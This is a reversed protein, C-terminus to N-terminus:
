TGGNKLETHIGRPPDSYFRYFYATEEFDLLELYYGPKPLGTPKTTRVAAILPAIQYFDAESELLDYQSFGQPLCLM